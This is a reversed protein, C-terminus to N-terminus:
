GQCINLEDPTSVVIRSANINVADQALISMKESSRVSVASDALSVSHSGGRSFVISEESLYMSNGEKTNLHRDKYNRRGDVPNPLCHMVFGEREDRNGFYLIIRTGVEPVAYLANGTEPYWTYFYEGTSEGGDIDLAIRVQEQKTEVVTGKLGLGTFLDQYIPDVIDKERLLYHFILEGNEFNAQVKYITMERGDFITHDGIKYYERSEVEYGIRTQGKATIDQMEVVYEEEAFSSIRNGKRMGFWFAKGGTIIDPIVYTGLQSALRMSFEWVTEAYRIPPKELARDKGEMCIVQGGAHEVVKQVTQAYTERVNQFSESESEQDLKFSGSKAELRIQTMRGANDTRIKTLYGHFLTTDDEMWIRIKSNNPFQFQDEEKAYGELLLSAHENIGWELRFSDVTLLPLASEVKIQNTVEIISTEETM